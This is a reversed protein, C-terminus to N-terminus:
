AAPGAAAVDRQSGIAARVDPPRSQVFDKSRILTLSTVAAVLAVIAGVLLIANLGDVFGSSRSRGAPRQSAHHSFITGLTAVGTAIGM